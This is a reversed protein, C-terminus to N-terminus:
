RAAIMPRAVHTTMWRKLSGLRLGLRERRRVLYILNASMATVAAIGLALGVPGGPRLWAHMPSRARAHPELGYYSRMWVTWALAVLATLLAAGLAPM